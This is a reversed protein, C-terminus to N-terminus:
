YFGACLTGASAATQWYSIQLKCGYQQLQLHVDDFFFESIFKKESDENGSVSKIGFKHKEKRTPIRNCRVM